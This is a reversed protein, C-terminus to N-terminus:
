WSDKDPPLLFDQTTSKLGHSNNAVVAAEEQKQALVRRRHAVVAALLAVLSAVLVISAGLYVWPMAALLGCAAAGEDLGSPCHMSGDCWLDAPLCAEIEPCRHPCLDVGVPSLPATQMPRWVGVWSVLVRQSANGVYEVVLDRSEQQRGRKQHRGRKQYEMQQKHYYYNNQGINMGGSTNWLDTAALQDETSTNDHRWGSSFVHTYDYKADPCISAIPALGGVAYVNIRTTVDCNTDSASFGRVRLFLFSGDSATVLRPLATCHGRGSEGVTFNGYSGGLRRQSQQCEKESLGRSVDVMSYEGELFFDNYDSAPTMVPITFIVRLMNTYSVLVFPEEHSVTCLCARMIPVGAWLEESIWIAPKNAAGSHSCEHRRSSMKYLTGCGSGMRSRLIRLSIRQHPEALFTYTCRLKRAGGRGFLFVDRPSAFLRDPQMTFTRDCPGGGPTQTGWQRKDVFEYRALFEVHSPATGAAYNLSLTLAPTDSVYSEGPQCPAAHPGPAHVGSCVRPLQDPRCFQGIVASITVNEETTNTPETTIDLPPIETPALTDGDIIILTNSCQGPTPMEPHEVHRYHLFYLWVVETNGALLRWMCTTNPLLSHVPSQIYGSRQGLSSVTYNCTSGERIYATSERDVFEVEVNLEFGFTRRRPSDQFPFDYPSAHFVLLLNPGSSTIGTIPAGGKCLTALVSGRTTNGDFAVLYDHLVYCNKGVQLKRERSLHPANKDKIYILHPNRQRVRILAVKGDPVRTQRIHYHCTLNRPYMGPFNPSQVKCNKKNCNEYLKDCFTNPIDEGRYTPSYPAGYRLIARERRLFRYSLGLMVNEQPSFSGPNTDATDDTLNFVRLMITVASTESYYVNHGWSAGCWYGSNLPRSLEEIQMYGDPCGATTHSMFRGLNFKEISLQVLDGYADGSAIFTLQCFHPLTGKKPRPIQLRYTAGVRGYYTRNCPSCGSPEDSNDQCHRRGDCYRDLSICQKNRCPFQAM